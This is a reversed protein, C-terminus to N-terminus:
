LGIFTVDGVRNGEVVYVPSGVIREVKSHIKVLMLKM